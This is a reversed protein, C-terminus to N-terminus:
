YKLNLKQVCRSITYKAVPFNKQFVFTKVNQLLSYHSIVNMETLRQGSKEYYRPNNCFLSATDCKNYSSILYHLNLIVTTLTLIYLFRLFSIEGAVADEM